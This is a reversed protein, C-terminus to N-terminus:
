ISLAKQSKNIVGRHLIHPSLSQMGNGMIPPLLPLCKAVYRCAPAGPGGDEQDPDYGCDARM